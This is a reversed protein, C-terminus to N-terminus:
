HLHDTIRIKKWCLYQFILNMLKKLESSDSKKSANNKNCDLDLSNVYEYTNKNKDWIICFSSSEPINVVITEKGCINEKSLYSWIGDNYQDYIVTQIEDNYNEGKLIMLPQLNKSKEYNNFVLLFPYNHNKVENYRIKKSRAMIAIDKEGNGDFDGELSLPCNKLQSLIEKQVGLEDIRVLEWDDKNVRFYDTIVPPIECNYDKYNVVATNEANNIVSTNDAKKCGIFLLSFFIINFLAKM